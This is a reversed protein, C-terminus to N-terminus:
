MILEQDSNFDDLLKALKVEDKSPLEYNRPQLTLYCDNKSVFNLKKQMNAYIYKVEVDEEVTITSFYPHSWKPAQKKIM